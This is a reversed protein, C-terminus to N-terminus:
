KQRIIVEMTDNEKMFSSKVSGCDVPKPFYCRMKYRHSFMILCNEKVDIDITRPDEQTLKARVVFYHKNKPNFIKSSSLTDAMEDATMEQRETISAQVTPRSDEDFLEAPDYIDEQFEKQFEEESYGISDIPDHKTAKSSNDTELIDEKTGLRFSHFILIKARFNM